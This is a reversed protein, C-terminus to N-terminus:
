LLGYMFINCLSEINIILHMNIGYMSFILTCMLIYNELFSNSHNILISEEKYKLGHALDIVRQTLNTDGNRHAVKVLSDVGEWHYEIVLNNM